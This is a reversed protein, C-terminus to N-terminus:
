NYWPPLLYDPEVLSMKITEAHLDVFLMVATQNHRYSVAGNSWSILTNYSYLSTATSATALTSGEAAVTQKNSCDGAYYISAPSKVSTDRRLGGGYTGDANIKYQTKLKRNIGYSYYQPINPQADCYFVQIDIRPLKQSAHQGSLFGALSYAGRFDGQEYLIKVSDIWWGKPLYDVGSPVLYGGSSDTYNSFILGVQKQNSLCKAKKAMEKAKSLAPLLMAALIAIISIVILLEILTFGSHRLSNRSKLSAGYVLGHMFNERVRSEGQREECVMREHESSSNNM